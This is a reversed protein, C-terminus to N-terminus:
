VKRTMRRGLFTGGLLVSATALLCLTSPEPAEAVRFGSFYYQAAPDPTWPWVTNDSQLYGGDMDWASGMMAFGPYGYASIPTDTWQYLEGGQDFTGYPGPSGAFYGVPTLCNTPDASGYNANNSGTTSLVNGPASNSKTPYQWYGANTGGGVYYAAKYWENESPIFYDAAANRTVGLLASPTNSGNLTYAGTETTGIGEPNNTPQGNQLWNCFRAADGWTIDFVPMNNGGAAAGIVSYNYSGPSGSQAIGVTPYDTAMGPSYLGYTDTQAVANLFAAYQALTVDCRGMRYTYGVAGLGTAPDAVNGPDGVSVFQLSTQGGPMNFVQASALSAALLAIAGALWGRICLRM